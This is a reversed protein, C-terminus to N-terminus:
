CRRVTGAADVVLRVGTSPPILDACAILVDCAQGDGVPPDTALVAVRTLADLLADASAPRIWGRDLHVALARGGALTATGLAAAVALAQEVAAPSGGTVALRLEGPEEPLRTRVLLTPVPGGGRRASARWAIATTSEGPRWPRLDGPETVGV